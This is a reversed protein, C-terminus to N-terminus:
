GRGKSSVRELPTPILSPSKSPHLRPQAATEGFSPNSPYRHAPLKDQELTILVRTDSETVITTLLTLLRSAPGSSVTDSLIRTAFRRKCLHAIVKPFYVLISVSTEACPNVKKGDTIGHLRRYKATSTTKTKRNMQGYLNTRSLTIQSAGAPRDRTVAQLQSCTSGCYQKMERGSAEM